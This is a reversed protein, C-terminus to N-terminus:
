VTKMCAQRYQEADKEVFDLLKEETMSLQIASYDTPKLKRDKEFLVDTSIRFYDAIAICSEFGPLTRGTEWAAIIGPSLNLGTALDRQSLKNKLRLEAIIHAIEM